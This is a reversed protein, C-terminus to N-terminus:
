AGQLHCFVFLICEQYADNQGTRCKDSEFLDPVVIKNIVVVIYVNGFIRLHLSAQTKFRNRPRKRGAVGAITMGQRPETVFNVACKEADIRGAVM